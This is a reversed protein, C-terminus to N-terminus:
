HKEAHWNTYRSCSTATVRGTKVPTSNVPDSRAYNL